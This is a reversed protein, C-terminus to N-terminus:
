PMPSSPNRNQEADKPPATQGEMLAEAERLFGRAEANEAWVPQALLSRLQELREKAQETQGLRHHAMALFAVDGPHTGTCGAGSLGAANLKESKALAEIAETHKGLRYRAVGLTNLYLGNEPHLRCATEALRLARLYEESTAQPKRVIKWGTRNFECAAEPWGAVLALAAQRIPERVNRDSEVTQRVESKLLPKDFLSALM